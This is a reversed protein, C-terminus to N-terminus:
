AVRRGGRGGGLCRSWAPEGEKGGGEGERQGWYGERGTWDLTTALFASWFGSQIGATHVHLPENLVGSCSWIEAVIRM